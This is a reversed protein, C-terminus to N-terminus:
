PHKGPVMVMWGIGFRDTLMGYRPSFFTQALPMDVRGGDAALAAFVRDAVAPSSVTLALRFGSAAQAQDQPAGCGDSALITMTGVTFEAHMIKQEYGAPLMGAPPPEPCESWRLVLGIKAHLAQQYFDLAEQCRGGYFLYPQVTAQRMALEDGLAQEQAQSEPTMFAALDECGYLPRIEIESDEPMPNPCRKVWAIAEAMSPVEWLWYGAVLEKTEAFPGDVVMRETGHFRVRVGKASPQLGAGDKMIGAQVLAENFRGMEEFMAKTAADPKIGAESSRTAKVFVAVQM